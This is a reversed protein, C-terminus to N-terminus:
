HEWDREDSSNEDPEREGDAKPRFHNSHGPSAGASTTSELISDWDGSEGDPIPESVTNKPEDKSEEKPLLGLMFPDKKIVERLEIVTCSRSPADSITANIGLIETPLGEELNGLKKMNLAIESAAKAERYSFPIPRGNLGKKSIREKLSFAVFDATMQIVKEIKILKSGFQDQLIENRQRERQFKWGDPDTKARGHVWTRLTNLNVGTAEIIEDVSQYEFYLEKCRQKTGQNIKKKM